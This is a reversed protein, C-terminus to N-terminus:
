HSRQASLKKNWIAVAQDLAQKVDQKGTVGAEVAKVLYRRLEDYDTIGAVYLTHSHPMSVAGASVAKEAAGAGPPVTMFFPDNAAQSMAPYVSAQKAFALQNADNTLYRAFKGVAPLLKADVNKPVAFHILWGGDAIGTPGLPAPAVDTIAYIDKADSQIRKVATPPALLMGLRGGKYADIAAPFNDEAFLADKLLGGAKYTEALKKILAIHAPSNFVAKGDKIVALGQQMMLGDIKSLAPCLGAKGTRAAIQRAFLLQEDLDRPARPIGAAKFIQTNYAIVAVNSYMPFGYTKGGFTLDELTSPLYRQRADGLLADVPTLLGDRAFEDAWPVNLNVLAPPTGAVIRTVLKTQIVDWPFDVWEVKVGPNGAEYNKVLTEFYPTFKPKM